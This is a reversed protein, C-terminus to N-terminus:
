GSFFSSSLSLFLGPILPYYLAHTLPPLFSLPPWEGLRGPWGSRSSGQKTLYQFYIPSKIIKGGSLSLSPVSPCCPTSTPPFKGLGLTESVFTFAVNKFISAAQRLKAVGAKDANVVHSLSLQSGSFCRACLAWEKLVLALHWAARCGKVWLCGM